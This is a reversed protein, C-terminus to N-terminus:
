ARKFVTSEHGVVKGIPGSAWYEPVTPLPVWPVAAQETTFALGKTSSGEAEGKEM